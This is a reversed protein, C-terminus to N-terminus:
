PDAPLDMLRTECMLLALASPGDSIEGERAMRLAEVASMPVIRILETAERETTGSMVAGTALFVIFKQNSLANSGFFWGIEELTEPAGGIEERLERRAASVADEEDVSGAVIEWCWERVPYRYQRIMLVNGESTVPVVFVAPATEVWEYAIESGDHIRVQDRRISYWPNTLAIETSLTVWPEEEEEPADSM